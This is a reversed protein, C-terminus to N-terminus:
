SISITSYFGPGDLLLSFKELSDPTLTVLLKHISRL